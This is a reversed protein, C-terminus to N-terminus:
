FAGVQLAAAAGAQRQDLGPAADGLVATTRPVVADDQLHRERSSSGILGDFVTEGRRRQRMPRRVNAARGFSRQAVASPTAMASGQGGGPGSSWGDDQAM